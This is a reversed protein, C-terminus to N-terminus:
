SWFERRREFLKKWNSFEYYSCEAKDQMDISNKSSQNFWIPTIGVYHAGKIDKIFNDGIFCCQEPLLRTKELCLEFIKANPKEIGAEESTVLFSIYEEIGLKKIKKYQIHATLDTCIGFLIGKEKWYILMEKVGDNLQIAGLITNWYIDYLITAYPFIPLQLNELLRQFYLLRNHSSAFENGIQLKVCKQAKKFENIFQSNEIHFESNMYESVARMAKPHISAYDYLTDDLDCIVCQYM